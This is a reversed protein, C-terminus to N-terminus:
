STVESAVKTTGDPRHLTERLTVTFPIPGGHRVGQARLRSHILRGAEAALGIIVLVFLLRLVLKLSKM